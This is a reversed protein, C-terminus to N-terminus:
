WPNGDNSCWETVKRGCFIVDFNVNKFNMAFANSDIKLRKTSIQSGGDLPKPWRLVVVKGFEPCNHGSFLNQQTAPQVM